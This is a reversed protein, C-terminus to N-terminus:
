IRWRTAGSRRKPLRRWTVPSAEAASGGGGVEVLSTLPSAMRGAATAQRQSIYLPRANKKSMWEALCVRAAVLEVTAGGLDEQSVALGALFDM